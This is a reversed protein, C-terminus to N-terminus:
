PLPHELLSYIVRSLALCANVPPLSTSCGKEGGDEEEWQNMTFPLPIPAIAWYTTPRRRM